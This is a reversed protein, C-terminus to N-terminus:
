VVYVPLRGISVGEDCPVGGVCFVALGCSQSHARDLSHICVRKGVVVGLAQFWREITLRTASMAVIREMWGDM